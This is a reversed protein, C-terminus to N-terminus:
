RRMLKGASAPQQPPAADLPAIQEAFHRYFDQMDEGALERCRALAAGAEQAHGAKIAALLAGHVRKWEAFEPSAAV